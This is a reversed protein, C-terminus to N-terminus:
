LARLNDPKIGKTGEIGHVQVEFRGSAPVFRIIVGELGNLLQSSQLGHVVVSDGAVFDSGLQSRSWSSSVSDATDSQATTSEDTCSVGKDSSPGGRM